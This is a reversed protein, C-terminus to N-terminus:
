EQTGPMPNYRVMPLSIGSPVSASADVIITTCFVNPSTAGIGTTGQVSGTALSGNSFLTTVHTSITLTQFSPVTVTVNSAIVGNFNRTVFVLAETNASINTCHFVTAVGNGASAGNDIVGSVRYIVNVPDTTLAHAPLAVVLGLAAIIWRLCKMKEEGIVIIGITGSGVSYHV